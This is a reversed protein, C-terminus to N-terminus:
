GCFGITDVCVALIMLQSSSGPPMLVTTAMAHKVPKL